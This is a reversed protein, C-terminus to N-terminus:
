WQYRVGARGGAGFLHAGGRVEGQIFSSLGDGYDFNLAFIGRGRVFGEDAQVLLNTNNFLGIPIFGGSVLVDSYALGTLIATMLIRDNILTTNGFRAGGQVMVLNGDALGLQDAGGGYSSNTYLAGVTPEVWLNPYLDFRYNLNGAITANLLSTSGGSSFPVIQPLSGPINRSQPNSFSLLTNFSENLRLADVKLTLDTSFGGNFYTAYLGASAGALNASVHASGNGLTSPQSSFSSQNLRLDSSVYGAMLGAILGDNAFLLGRSTLDAGALFGVTGTRSQLSQNLGASGATGAAGGPGVGFAVFPVATPGAANRKEYDGYVQTWTAFRVAPEVPLPM